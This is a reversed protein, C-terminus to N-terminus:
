AATRANVVIWKHEIKILGAREMEKIEKDKLYKSMNGDNKWGLMGYLEEKLYSRPPLTRLLAALKSAKSERPESQKDDKKYEIGLQIVDGVKVNKLQGIVADFVDPDGHVVFIEADMTVERNIRKIAQYIESVVCNFRIDEFVANKFYYKGPAGVMALKHNRIASQAFYCWYLPYVEMPINPSAIVWVQNFQWWYNKGIIAGFHAVAVDEGNYKEGLGINNLGVDKLCSILKSEDKKHTVILTKHESGHKDKVAKAIEQYYNTTKWINSKSANFNVPHFVTDLHDFIKPFSMVDIDKSYHYRRDIEANADLIINNELTWLNFNGYFASLRENNYLCINKGNFEKLYSIFNSVRSRAEDGKIHFWNATIDGEFEKLLESDFEPKVKVKVLRNSNNQKLETILNLLGKSLAIFKTDLHSPLSKLIEKYTEDSFSFVPIDMQEDLVLTHRGREFYERLQPNQCLRSYRSHTIIIVPYTQLLSLNDQYKNWNDHKISVAIMKNWGYSNIDNASRDADEVFRKVILFKRDFKDPETNNFYEAIIRDTERSKGVGAEVGLVVFKGIGTQGKTILEALREIQSIFEPTDRFDANTTEAMQVLGGKWVHSNANILFKQVTIDINFKKLQILMLRNNSLLHM